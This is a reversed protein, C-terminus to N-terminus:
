GPPRNTEDRSDREQEHVHPLYERRSCGSAVPCASLDRDPGRGRRRGGRRIGTVSSALTRSSPGRCPDGDAAPLTVVGAQSHVDLTGWTTVMQIGVTRQVGSLCVVLRSSPPGSRAGLAQAGPPRGTGRIPRGGGRSPLSLGHLDRSVADARDAVPQPPDTAALLLWGNEERAPTVYPLLGARTTRPDADCQPAAGHGPFM